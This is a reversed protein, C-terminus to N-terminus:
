WGRMRQWEEPMRNSKSLNCYDCTLCLNEPWNSGSRSLPIMHDIHIDNPVDWCLRIGCYGCRGDQSEYLALIDKASHKGEANVVRSRRRQARVRMIEPHNKRFEKQRALITERNDWYHRQGALRVRPRNAEAWKKYRSKITTHKHRERDRRKYIKIRHPNALRWLRQTLRRRERNAARYERDYNPNNRRWKKYYERREQRHTENYHNERARAEDLHENRFVRKADCACIKCDSRFGSKTKRDRHFYTSTLPYAVGCKSCRKLPTSDSM